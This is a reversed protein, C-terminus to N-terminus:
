VDSSNQDNKEYYHQLYSINYVARVRSAKVDNNKKQESNTWGM